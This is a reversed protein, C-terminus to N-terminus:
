LKGWRGMVVQVGSCLVCMSAVAVLSRGDGHAALMRQGQGLGAGGDRRGDVQGAAPAGGCRPDGGAGCGCLQPEQARAAPLAPPPCPCLATRPADRPGCRTCSNPRAPAAAPLCLRTAIYPEWAAGWCFQRPYGSLSAPSPLSRRTQRRCAQRHPGGRVQPPHVEKKALEGHVHVRQGFVLIDDQPMASHLHTPLLLPSGLSAHQPCWLRATPPFM